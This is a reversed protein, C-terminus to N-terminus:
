NGMSFGMKAWLLTQAEEWLASKDGSIYDLARYLRTIAEQNEGENLLCRAEQVWARNKQRILNKLTNEAAILENLLSRNQAIDEKYDRGAGYYPENGRRILNSVHNVAEYFEIITPIDAACNGNAVLIKYTDELSQLETLTKNTEGKEM